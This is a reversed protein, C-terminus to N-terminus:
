FYNEEEITHKDEGMMQIYKIFISSLYKESNFGLRKAVSSVKADSRMLVKKAYELRYHYIFARFNRKLLTKTAVALALPEVDAIKALQRIRLGLHKYARREIIANEAKQLTDQLFAESYSATEIMEADFPSPSYRRKQLLLLIVYLLTVSYFLNIISQWIVPAGLGFTALTTLIIGAFAVIILSICGGNITHLRYYNLDVVQESLGDHYQKILEVGRTALTLLTFGAFLYPIYYLWNSSLAGTPPVMLMHSKTAEPLILLPVQGLAVVLAPLYLHWVRGPESKVMVLVSHIVFACILVPSFQFLGALFIGSQGQGFARLVEDMLTMPWILIAAILMNSHPFRDYRVWIGALPVIWGLLLSVLVFQYTSM